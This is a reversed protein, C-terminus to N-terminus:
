SIAAEKLVEVTRLGIFRCYLRSLGNLWRALFGSGNVLKCSMMALIDEDGVVREAQVARRKTLMARWHRMPYLYAELLRVLGKPNARLCLLAEATLYFILYPVIKLLTRGEYFLLCNLLRNRMQYYLTDPHKKATASGKHYVVAEPVQIVEYGKLWMRWSLYLDEAYLFYDEDFPAEGVAERRYMLACGSAFFTKWPEDFVRMINYGLFNITGNKEYYEAPTGETYVKAMAVAVRPEDFAQIMRELWDPAAVGDNNLLAVFEGRAHYAGLNNGGAFGFNQESRVVVAEPFREAVYAASGDSSGNDVLIIERHSYTQAALSGLCADLLHRGNYNVVIVSVLPQHAM